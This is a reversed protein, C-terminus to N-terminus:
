KLSMSLSWTFRISTLQCLTKSLNRFLYSRTSSPNLFRSRSEKGDQAAFLPLSKCQQSHNTKMNDQKGHKDRMRWKTYREHRVNTTAFTTQLLGRNLFWAVGNIFQRSKRTFLYPNVWQSVIISGKNLIFSFIKTRSLFLCNKRNPTERTVQFNELSRATFFCGRIKWGAKNELCQFLKVQFSNHTSIHLHEHVM